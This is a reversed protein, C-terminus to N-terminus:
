RKARRRLPSVSQIEDFEFDEIEYDESLYTAGGGNIVVSPRRVEIIRGDSMVVAFPRFPKQHIFEIIQEEFEQTKMAVGKHTNQRIAVADYRDGSTM